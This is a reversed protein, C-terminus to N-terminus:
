AHAGPLTNHNLPDLSACQKCRLCSHSARQPRQLTALGQTCLVGRLACRKRQMMIMMAAERKVARLKSPSLSAKVYVKVAVRMGLKPCLTAYITSDRRAPAPGRQSPTQYPFNGEM